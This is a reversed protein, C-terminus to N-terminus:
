EDAADSTYLLCTTNTNTFNPRSIASVDNIQGFILYNDFNTQIGTQAPTNPIVENRTNWKLGVPDHVLNLTLDKSLFAGLRRQGLTGDTKAVVVNPFNTTSTGNDM